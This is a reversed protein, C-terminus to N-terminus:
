KTRLAAIQSIVIDARVTSIHFQWESASASRGPPLLDALQDAWILELLLFRFNGNLHVPLDVQPSYIQWNIQGYSSKCYFDSIAM